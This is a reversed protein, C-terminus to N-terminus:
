KLFLTKMYEFMKTKSIENKNTYDKVMNTDTDAGCVADAHIFDSKNPWITAMMHQRMGCAADAHRM